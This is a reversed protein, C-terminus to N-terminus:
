LRTVLRLIASALKLPHHRVLNTDDIFDGRIPKVGLISIAAEDPEVFDAGAGRYKELVEPQVRGTNVLVHTIVGQGIHRVLARVHDSAKYGLTENPQTMVNCVYIKPANSAKIAAGIEPVLLNPIISTYLSGPGILIVDADHIAQVVGPLAVPNEPVLFVHEIDKAKNVTTQGM